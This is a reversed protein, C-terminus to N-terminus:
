FPIDDDFDDPAQSGASAPAERRPTATTPADKQFGSLGRTQDLNIYSAKKPQGHSEWQDTHQRGQCFVLDGKHRYQSIMEALKGYARCRYWETHEGPTGDARKFRENVAVSFQVTATGNPLTKSEPEQGIRGIITTQHFM